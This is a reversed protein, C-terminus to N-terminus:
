RCRGPAGATCSTAKAAELTSAVRSAEEKAAVYRQAASTWGDDTRLFADEDTLPPHRDEDLYLLYSNWALQIPAMLLDNREIEVLVGDRGDFVWLHAQAAGSLM